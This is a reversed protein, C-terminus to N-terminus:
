ITGRVFADSYLSISDCDIYPIICINSKRGLPRLTLFISTAPSASGTRGGRYEQYHFILATYLVHYFLAKTHDSQSKLATDKETSLCLPIFM